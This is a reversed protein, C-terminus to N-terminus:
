NNKTCIVGLLIPLSSPVKNITITCADDNFSMNEKDSYTSFSADGLSFPGIDVSASGQAQFASKVDSYDQNDLTLTMAPEFGVIIEYPILSLSGNPGFFDPAGNYLKNGYNKIFSQQFWTFPEINFKQLGTFSVKLDFNTSSWSSKITSSSASGQAYVSLFDDFLLSANSSASWGYASYDSEKSNGNVEITAATVGNVSNTQWQQYATTFADLNYAPLLIETSSSQPPAPKQGPLSTTSGLPAQTGVKANMNFNNKTANDRAGGDFGVRSQADLLSQFDVGSKQQLLKNYSSQASDMALKASTYVGGYKQIYQEFTLGPMAAKMTTWGSVAAAAQTQFNTNANSLNGAAINIQSDLNPNSDGGLNIWNLFSAYSGILDSNPAYTPSMKPICNGISYINYNSVEPDANALDVNLTDGAFCIVQSTPDFQGNTVYDALATTYKQWLNQSTLAM